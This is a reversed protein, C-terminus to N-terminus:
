FPLGFGGRRFSSRGLGFGQNGFGRNIGTRYGYGPAGYYSNYSRYTYGPVAYGTTYGPVAYGTTYGQGGYYGQYGSSYYTTAPMGYYGVGGGGYYPSTGYYGPAYGMGGVGPTGINLPGFPTGVSVAVQARASSTSLALVLTAAM